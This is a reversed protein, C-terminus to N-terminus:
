FSFVHRDIFSSSPLCLYLCLQAADAPTIASSTAICNVTTGAISPTQPLVAKHGVSIVRLCSPPITILSPTAACQGTFIVADLGGWVSAIDAITNDFEPTSLPYFRSGSSQSIRRGEKINGATFAVRCASAAFKRVIAEGEPCTGDTVLVRLPKFKVTLTDRRISSASAHKIPRKTAAAIRHEEMKKELYNDAM